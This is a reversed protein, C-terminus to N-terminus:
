VSTSLYVYFLLKALICTFFAKLNKESLIPDDLIKNIIYRSDSVVAVKYRNVNFLERIGNHFKSVLLKAVYLSKNQM